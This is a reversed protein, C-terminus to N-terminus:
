VFGVKGAAASFGESTTSPFSITPARVDKCRVTVVVQTTQLMRRKGLLAPHLFLSVLGDTEGHKTETEVAFVGRGGQYEDTTMVILGRRPTSRPTAEGPNTEHREGAGGDPAAAGSNSATREVLLWPGEENNNSTIQAELPDGSLTTNVQSAKSSDDVEVSHLLGIPIAMSLDNQRHLRM